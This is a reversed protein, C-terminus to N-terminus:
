DNKYFNFREREIKRNNMSIQRLKYNDSLHPHNKATHGGLAARKSYVKPCYRCEYKKQLRTKDDRRQVFDLLDLTKETKRRLDEREEKKVGVFLIDRKKLLLSFDEKYDKTFEESGSDFENSNFVFMSLTNDKKELRVIENKSSLQPIKKKKEKKKRPRKYKVEKTEKRFYAPLPTLKTELQKDLTHSDASSKKIASEITEPLSLRRFRALSNDKPLDSTTNAILRNNQSTNEKPLISLSPTLPISKTQNTPNLSLPKHDPTEM